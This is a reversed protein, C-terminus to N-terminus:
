GCGRGRPAQSHGKCHIVRSILDGTFHVDSICCHLDHGQVQMSDRTEWGPPKPSVSFLSASAVHQQIHDLHDMVQAKGQYDGQGLEHDTEVWLVNPDLLAEFLHKENAWNAFHQYANELIQKEQGPM